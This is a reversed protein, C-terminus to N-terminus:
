FAFNVIPFFPVSSTSNINFVGIQLGQFTTSKNVIGLQLGCGKEALNFIGIQAGSFDGTVYNCIAALQLAGGSEGATNFLVGIQIGGIERRVKNGIVGIDLGYVDVHEGVGLNLRFGTIESNVEPTELMPLIGLALPSSGHVDYYTMDTHMRRREVNSAPTWETRVAKTGRVEVPAGAGAAVDQAVASAAIACMAWIM